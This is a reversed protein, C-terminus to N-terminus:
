VVSLAASEGDIGDAVFIGGSLNPGGVGANERALGVVFFGKLDGTEPRHVGLLCSHTGVRRSSSRQGAEATVDSRAAVAGEDTALVQQRCIVAM